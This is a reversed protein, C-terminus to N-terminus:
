LLVVTEEDVAKKAALAWHVAQYGDDLTAAQSTEGLAIANVFAQLEAAFTPEWYDYFWKITSQNIGNKDLYLVRDNTPTVCIRICGETGFIETEVHYGYTSNRTTEFWGMAGNEFKCLIGCNDIDNVAALGEYAYVGGLGYVKTANSSLFWRAADYDHTLMDFVLGGSTPSFQIIFEAMSAPDRNVMKILIPKGIFGAELKKKAALYSADFRRNFGIQFLNVNSNSVADRIQDIEARSMGLPKELFINRVGLEAAACAMECHALSSSAIVVGDLEKNQFLERYDSYRYKPQMEDDVEDLEKQLASCIATLEANPIRHRINAAHNRGLRGLGVIGLKINRMPT